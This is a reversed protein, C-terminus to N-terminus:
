RLGRKVCRTVQRYFEEFEANGDIEFACVVTLIQAKRDELNQRKVQQYCKGGPETCDKLVELTQDNKIVQVERSEGRANNESASQAGVVISYVLALIVGTAACGMLFILGYRTRPTLHSLDLLKRM